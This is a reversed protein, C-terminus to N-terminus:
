KFLELVNPRVPKNGSELDYDFKCLLEIHNKFPMRKPKWGILKQAKSSDGILRVVENPRLLSEDLKIYKKWDLNFYNFTLDLYEECWHTEGTAVVFDQAKDLQLM